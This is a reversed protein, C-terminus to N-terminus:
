ATQEKLALQHHFASPIVATQQRGEKQLFRDYIAAAPVISLLCIPICHGLETEGLYPLTRAVSTAGKTSGDILIIANVHSNRKDLSLVTTKWEACFPEWCSGGEVTGSWGPLAACGLRAQYNIVHDIQTHFTQFICM